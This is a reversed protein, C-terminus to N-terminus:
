ILGLTPNLLTVATTLTFYDARFTTDVKLTVEVTNAGKDLAITSTLDTYASTSTIEGSLDVEQGNVKLTLYESAQGKKLLMANLVLTVDTAAEASEVNMKLTSGTVMSGGAIYGRNATKVTAVPYGSKMNLGSIDGFEADIKEGADFTMDEPLDGECVVDLAIGMAQFNATYSIKGDTLSATAMCGTIDIPDMELLTDVMDKMDEPIQDKMSELLASLSSPDFTFDNFKVVFEGDIVEWTGPFSLFAALTNDLDAGQGSELKGTVIGNDRFEFNINATQGGLEAGGRAKYLIPSNRQTVSSEVKIPQKYSVGEYSITVEKDNGNLKRAAPYTTYDTIEAITGDSYVANVCLGKADFVEGYSYAIKEPSQTVALATVEKESVSIAQTVTKGGYTITVSTDSASLAGNASVSYDAVAKTTGDSYKATVVMGTADFIQGAVYETKVPATTIELSDLNSGCATIFVATATLIALATIIVLTRKITKM